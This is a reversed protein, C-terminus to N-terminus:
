LLLLVKLIIIINHQDSFSHSTQSASKKRVDTVCGRGGGGGM